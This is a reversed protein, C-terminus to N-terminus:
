RKKKVPLPRPAPPPQPVQQLAVLEDLFIKAGTDPKMRYVGEALVGNPEGFNQARMRGKRSACSPYKGQSAKEQYEGIYGTYLFCLTMYRPSWTATAGSIWTQVGIYECDRNTPRECERKCALVGDEHGLAFTKLLKRSESPKLQPPKCLGGGMFTGTARAGCSLLNVGPCWGCCLGQLPMIPRGCFKFSCMRQIETRNETEDLSAIYMVLDREESTLSANDSFLDNVMDASWSHASPTESLSALEYDSTEMTVRLSHSTQAVLFTLIIRLM